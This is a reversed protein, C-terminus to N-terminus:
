SVKHRGNSRIFDKVMLNWYPTLQNTDETRVGYIIEEQGLWVLDVLENEGDFYVKIIQAPHWWIENCRNGSGGKKCADSNFAIMWKGPRPRVKDYLRGPKAKLNDSYM